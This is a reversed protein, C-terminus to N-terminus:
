GNRMEISHLSTLYDKVSKQAVAAQKGVQILGKIQFPNKLVSFLIAPLNPKGDKLPICAAKPLDTSHDDCVVRLVAFPIGSKALIGSEMDAAVCKTKQFYGYKGTHTSLITPTHALNGEWVTADIGRMFPHRLGAHVPILKGDVWVKEPIVIDGVKVEPSLGAACGFSLIKKAGKSRLREIAELTGQETASGYEILTNPTFRRYIEAEAKLGTLVGLM